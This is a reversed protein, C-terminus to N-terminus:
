SFDVSFTKNKNLVLKKKLGHLFSNFILMCNKLLDNYNINTDYTYLINRSLKDM